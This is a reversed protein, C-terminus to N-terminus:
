TPASRESRFAARCAESCFYIREGSRVEVLARKEPVHLGCVPDRVMLGKHISGVSDVRASGGQTHALPSRFLSRWVIRLLLAVFVWYLFRVIM